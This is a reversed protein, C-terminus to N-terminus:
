DLGLISGTNNKVEPKTVPEAVPRYTEEPLVNIPPTTKQGSLAPQLPNIYKEPVNPIEGLRRAAMLEIDYGESHVREDVYLLCLGTMLIPTLLILSIELVVQKSIEFWAPLTDAAELGFLDIGNVIAYWILPVYLLSLASYIAVLTFIFLAAVRKVNKGALTVSRGIASFAGQGEVLMVQPVYVFRSVILFFLWLLALFTGLGVTLSVIFTLVPSFSFVWFVGAVLLVIIILGIYFLILGFLGLSFGL